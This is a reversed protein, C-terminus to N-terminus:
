KTPMQEVIAMTKVCVRQLLEIVQNKYDAFKYTNFLKVSMGEKEQKELEGQV